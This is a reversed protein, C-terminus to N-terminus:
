RLPEEPQTPAGWRLRFEEFALVIAWHGSELSDAHRRAAAQVLAVTQAALKFHQAKEEVSCRGTGVIAHATVLEQGATQIKKVWRAAEEPSRDSKIAAAEDLAKRLRAHVERLEGEVDRRSESM